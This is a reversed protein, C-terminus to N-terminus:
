FSSMKKSKEDFTGVGYWIAELFLGCYCSNDVFIGGIMKPVIGAIMRFLVVNDEELDIRPM